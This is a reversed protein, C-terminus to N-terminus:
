VALTPMVDIIDKKRQKLREILTEDKATFLFWTLKYLNDKELKEFDLEKDSYSKDDKFNFQIHNFVWM